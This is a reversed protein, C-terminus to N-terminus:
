TNLVEGERALDRNVAHETTFRDPFRAKLKAINKAGIEEFSTGLFRVLMAQYWMLDGIEEKLNPADPDVQERMVGMLHEALEGAETAVGIIGHVVDADCREPMVTVMGEFYGAMGWEANPGPAKTGYFLARKYGDLKKAAQAFQTLASFLGATNIDEAFYNPSVTRGSEQTYENINM